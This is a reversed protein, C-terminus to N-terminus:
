RAVRARLSEYEEATVIGSDRLQQLNRLTQEPDAAAPVAVPESATPARSVRGMSAQSVAAPTSTRPHSAAYAQAPTFRGGYYPVDGTMGSRRLQRPVLIM